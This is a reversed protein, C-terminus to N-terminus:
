NIKDYKQLVQLFAIFIYKLLGSDHALNNAAAAQM